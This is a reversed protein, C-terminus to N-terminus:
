TVKDTISQSVWALLRWTTQTGVCCQQPDPSVGPSTWGASASSPTVGRGPSIEDSNRIRLLAWCPNIRRSM